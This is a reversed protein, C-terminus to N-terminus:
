TSGTACDSRSARSCRPDPAAPRPALTLGVFAGRAHPDPHPQARRHPLSSCCATAAPASRPPRARGARRLSAPALADRLWRLSGAASLMVSMMHWAPCPTASPMSAAGRSSSRRTPRPSCSAPHGWRCRWSARHWRGSGSRTPRSTAAARRRGAHRRSGPPRPPAATVTGTVEPGEYTPPLWGPHIELADLVEPSWDRAALDFLITGSGDAKDIAHEGTLPAPRLGQAPPRPGRAGLRRARPRPGLRAQARHLRDARRQRHDRHTAGPRGGRPDRRLRPRDAPRELPDGAAPGRGGRRAAGAGHMQGTLGVAVVDDGGVGTAALVRRIAEHGDWWLGPGAREVRGRRTTATNPRRRRRAVHGVRRDPCGQDRDDLRRHRPRLGMPRGAPGSEVRALEIAGSARNVLNELLEQHGSVPRPDIEGAAVRAELEALSERGDLIAAGLEGGLGRLAGRRSGGADGRELLEAAVLLARALTDIGGIHAHFLDTRDISQRRLKADFNFGGTTFGGGKLIEYLPLALEEVSNPFQDTDWGNQPRRPQRRDSGFIGHAVAYAVEHHFSHGALTAHNAEINVRYEDELGHRVLFGHVTAADYDYQHKTPEM